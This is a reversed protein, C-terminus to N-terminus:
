IYYITLRTRTSVHQSLNLHKQFCNKIMMDKYHTKSPDTYPIYKIEVTIIQIVNVIM